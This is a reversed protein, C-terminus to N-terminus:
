VNKVGKEITKITIKSCTIAWQTGKRFTGEYIKIANFIRELSLSPELKLLRLPKNLVM